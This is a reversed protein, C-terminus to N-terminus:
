ASSSNRQSLVSKIVPGLLIILISAALGISLPDSVFIGFSGGSVSLSRYMNSEAIPGLIAGLVFAIVSYDHKKMYFGVFGLVVITAVDVWNNRLALSGLFSLVIISPIILHTDIRTLYGARPVLTLGVLVIIFNGVLLALLVSYTVNLQTTFLDPGPRLGHMILGGLLVATSGSGPIGFAFTPVLSGGVTGNNASESAIVGEGIGTGFDEPHKSSRVAEGYSLFNSVSAGSGPVAGVLMGIIASKAVLLPHYITNKVGSLRSGQLEVSEKSIKEESALRIMEAIAFLAILIAIYSLGSYLMTSGFTFRQVPVTPAIGVTMLMLGFAGAVLGKVVSGKTIVSIMALGLIALLFYHPSGFLLVLEIMLPSILILVFITLLGGLASSTASTTLATIAQGKKSMPYGDFTTAAAGATGPVNILIASISGGYMAGSYISILLIIADTGDLPITLPLIIAMGLTAGIGPLAGFLIGLLLGAIIWLPTQGTFIFQLSEALVPVIAAM